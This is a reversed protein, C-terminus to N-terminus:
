EPVFAHRPVLELPSELTKKRDRKVPDARGFYVAPSGRIPRVCSDLLPIMYVKIGTKLVNPDHPWPWFFPAHMPEHNMPAKKPSSRLHICTM